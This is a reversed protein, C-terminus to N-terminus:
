PVGAKVKMEKKNFKMADDGELAIIIKGDEMRYDEANNANAENSTNNTSTDNGCGVFHLSFATVFVALLLKKMNCNNIYIFSTQLPVNMNKFHQIIRNKISLLTPTVM